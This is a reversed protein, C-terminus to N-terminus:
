CVVGKYLFMKIAAQEIEKQKGVMICAGNMSLMWGNRDYQPYGVNNAFM